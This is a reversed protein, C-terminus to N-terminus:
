KVPVSPRDWDRSKIDKGGVSALPLRGGAPEPRFAPDLYLSTAGAYHHCPRLGFFDVEILGSDRLFKSSNPYWDSNDLIIFGGSALKERAAVCCDYRNEGCDVVIIDFSEALHRFHLAMGGQRVIDVRCNDPAALKTMWSRDFEVARVFKARASWFLTSYGAGFEFVSKSSFDLGCLYEIASYSYMPLPRGNSDVAHGTETSKLFGWDNGVVNVVSALMMVATPMRFVAPNGAVAPDQRQVECYLRDGGMAGLFLALAARDLVVAAQKSHSRHSPEVTAGADSLTPRLESGVNSCAPSTAKTASDWSKPSREL